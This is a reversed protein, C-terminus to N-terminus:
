LKVQKRYPTIIGIDDPKLGCINLLASVYSVVQLIEAANFWSPSDKERTCQGKVGHFVLPVGETELVCKMIPNECLEYAEEYSAKSELDDDYFLKSPLKLLTEHARYNKVLKTLVLPNYKEVPFREVNRSYLPRTMLRELFSKNLGCNQSVDSM